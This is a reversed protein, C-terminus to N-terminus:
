LPQWHAWPDCTWVWGVSMFKLPALIIPIEPDRIQDFVRISSMNLGQPSNQHVKSPGTLWIWEGWSWTPAETIKESRELDTWMSSLTPLLLCHSAVVSIWDRTFSCGQNKLKCHFAQRQYFQLRPEQAQLTLDARPCFVRISIIIIIIIIKTTAIIAVIIITIIKNNTNNTYPLCYMVMEIHLSPTLLVILFTM